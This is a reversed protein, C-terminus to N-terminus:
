YLKLLSSLRYLLYTSKSACKFNPDSSAIMREWFNGEGSTIAKDLIKKNENPMLEYYGNKLEKALKLREHSNNKIRSFRREWEKRLGYGQGVVNQSHQRYLMHPKPDFIVHSNIALAIAYIWIDHMRIYSPTYKSVIEKLTDNFVMTCGGIFQYILAEGFTLRPHIIVSKIKNLNQDALQTQSFYLAPENESFSALKSIATSLKDNEWYDDQDAFAYYDAKPCSMLLNMFSLQPGLNQGTYYNLKGAQKYEELIKITDDHSGDDRVLLNVEVDKQQLISEIQQRIYKQGNYTSM